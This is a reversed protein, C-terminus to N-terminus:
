KIVTIRKVSSGNETDIRVMYVGAEYQGMNLVMSDTNVDQDYVMQGMANFVTVHTMAEANIHLDSSTPNPYISNVVENEAISLHHVTVDITEPCSMAYYTVDYDGGYIVRITYEYEGPEMAEDTYTTTNADFIGVFEGDRYLISGVIDGTPTPPVPGSGEGVLKFAVGYPDSNGTDALTGWGSSTLQLGNGSNGVEPYCEPQAWPGSSASGTLGWALYYTGAPLEINLNSATIAMVPRTTATTQGDSGRYCNTFSTSTMINTNMDGWVIQGNANPAGDYIVAYLGTFTSTTTSGTQYGYVEIETITTASELTFDDAVNYGGANNCNPGLTNQTGKIWSADAGGSMAGPDTVFHPEYLVTADRKAPVTFELDDVCMIYQDNCNFHRIALYINQGAYASLDVSYQYWTGLKAGNGDRSERGGNAAGGKATLTWENIITFDSAATGTTSVAVGFHDAPYGADTAAAYFSFTSGAAPTVQSTVLFENPTLAGVGNIYSGSCIANTGTRYWDLTISAYYTWTTPIASTLCWTWGDNNGDIVTWGEPMGGEFGETWGTTPPTPPTPPTTGEPLTWTVVVNQQEDSVAVVEADFAEMGGFNSCATYTWTYEMWDGMGSAYLPAVKAVHESGEAMGDVDFQYFPYETEGLYEGDLMVKYSLAARNGLEVM